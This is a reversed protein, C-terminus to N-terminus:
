PKPKTPLDKYVTVYDADLIRQAEKKIRGTETILTEFGKAQTPVGEAIQQSTQAVQDCTTSLTELQKIQADTPGKKKYAREIKYRVGFPTPARPDPVQRSIEVFQNVERDISALQKGMDRLAADILKRSQEALEGLLKHTQPADAAASPAPSPSAAPIADPPPEAAALEIGELRPILKFAEFIPALGTARKAANIKPQLAALEDTFLAAFAKRRNVPDTIDITATAAPSKGQQATVPKYVLGRQKRMLLEHAAAINRSKDDTAAKAANTYAEAAMTPVKMRVHCEAKLMYMQYQDVKKAADGRLSLAGAIKQLADKYNGDKIFANIEEPTALQALAAPAALGLAVATIAVTVFPLLRRSPM